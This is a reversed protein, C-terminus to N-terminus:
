IYYGNICMKVLTFPHSMDYKSRFIDHQFNGADKILLNRSIGCLTDHKAHRVLHVNGVYFEHCSMDFNM